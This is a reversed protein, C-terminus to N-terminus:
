SLENIQLKNIENVQKMSINLHCPTKKKLLIRLQILLQRSHGFIALWRIFVNVFDMLVASANLLQHKTAWRKAILRLKVKSKM